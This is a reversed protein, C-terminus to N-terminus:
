HPKRANALIDGVMKEIDDGTATARAEQRAKAEELKLSKLIRAGQDVMVLASLEGLGVAQAMSVYALLMGDLLAGRESIPVEQANVTRLVLNCLQVSRPETAPPIKSDSM